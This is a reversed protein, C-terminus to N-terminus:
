KILQLIFKNTELENKDLNSILIKYLDEKNKKYLNNSPPYFMSIWWKTAEIQKERFDHYKDGFYNNEKIYKIIENIMIQQYNSLKINIFKFKDLFNMPVILNPYIDYIYKDSDNINQLCKELSIIKNNLLTMDKQNDYKFFKCIVYKDSYFMRSFYPKYIYVEEYFSSLLYIMKITPLTYSEFIKIILNGKFEQIKLATIIQSFILKYSKQEEFNDNKFNYDGNCTILNSYEISNKSNDQKILNPFTKNLLDIIENPINYDKPMNIYKNFIKDKAIGNNIKQRYNIIAKIFDGSNENISTYTLKDMDCINFFLLIEWLIYYEFSNIKMLDKTINFYHNTLSDISDEYNSIKIEFPNVVYYFENKTEIKKTIHMGSKTRHLFHQFGLTILPLNITSSLIVFNNKEKDLIDLNESNLKFINPNYM